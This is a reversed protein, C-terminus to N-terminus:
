FLAYVMLASVSSSGPNSNGHRFAVLAINERFCISIYDDEASIGTGPSFGLAGAPLWNGTTQDLCRVCIKNQQNQGRYAVYPVDDANFAFAFYERYGAEPSVRVDDSFGVSQGVQEWGTGASDLRLVKIGNASSLGYDLTAVYPRGTSDLELSLHNGSANHGLGLGGVLQWANSSNDYRAVAARNGGTQGHNSESWSAWLQDDPGIEISTAWIGSTGNAAFADSFGAGGLFTSTGAIPDVKLVSMSGQPQSLTNGGAGDQYGIYLNGLSDSKLDPMHSEGTSLPTSTVNTWVRNVRDFWRLNLGSGNAQNGYAYSARYIVSNLGVALSPWWDRDNSASGLAGVSVWDWSGPRFSSTSGQGVSSSLGSDQFTIVPLGGYITQLKPTMTRGITPVQVNLSHWSQATLPSALCVLALLLFSRSITPPASTLALAPLTSQLRLM